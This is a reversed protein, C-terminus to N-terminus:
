DGVPLFGDDENEVEEIEEEGYISSQILEIIEFKAEELHKNL